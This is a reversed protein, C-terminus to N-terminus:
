LDHEARKMTAYWKPVGNTVYVGVIGEVYWGRMENSSIEQNFDALNSSSILKTKM